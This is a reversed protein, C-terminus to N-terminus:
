LGMGITALVLMGFTLGVLALISRRKDTQQLTRMGRYCLVITFVYAAMMVMGFFGEVVANTQGTFYKNGYVLMQLIKVSLNCVSSPVLAYLLIYRSTRARGQGGAAVVVIHFMSGVLWYRIIGMAAGGGMIRLWAYFWNDVLYQQGSIYALEIGGAMADMGILWVAMYMLPPPASTLYRRSFGVFDVFIWKLLDPLALKPPAEESQPDEPQYTDEDMM